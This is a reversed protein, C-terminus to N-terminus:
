PHTPKLRATIRDWRERYEPAQDESIWFMFRSDQPNQSSAVNDSPVIFADPMAAADYRLDVFVYFISSGRLRLAKAGVDFEWRNKSPDRKFERRAGSSTKVQISIAANGDSDGVLVDVSPSGGRTLAAPFGLQALRFAVFHEGAAGTLATSRAM